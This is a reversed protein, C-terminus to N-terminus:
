CSPWSGGDTRVLQTSNDVRYVSPPVLVGDITVETVSGVTRLLIQADPGIIIKQTGGKYNVTLVQGDVGAVTTGVTANTM